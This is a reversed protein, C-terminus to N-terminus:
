TKRLPITYAQERRRLELLWDPYLREDIYRCSHIYSLRYYRDVMIESYDSMKSGCQKCQDPAPELYDDHFLGCHSCFVGGDDNGWWAATNRM